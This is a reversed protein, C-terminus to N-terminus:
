KVMLKSRYRGEAAHVIYVGANDIYTEVSQGPQLTFTSVQQGTTSFISVTTQTKLTSSVVIRHSGTTADISGETDAEYTSHPELMQGSQGFIITRRQKAGASASAVFYPRFAAVAVTTDGEAPVKEYSGGDAAMTFAQTGAAFEENM